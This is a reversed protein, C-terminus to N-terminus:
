YILKNCWLGIYSYSWFCAISWASDLLMSSVWVSYTDLHMCSCICKSGCHFTLTLMTRPNAGNHFVRRSVAAGPSETSMLVCSSLFSSGDVCTLLSYLCARTYDCMWSPMIGMVRWKAWKVASESRTLSFAFIGCASRKTFCHLYTPPLLKATFLLTRSLPRTYRHSRCFRGVRPFM